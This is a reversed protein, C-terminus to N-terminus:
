GRTRVSMVKRTSSCPIKSLVTLGLIKEPLDLGIGVDLKAIVIGDRPDLHADAATEDGLVIGLGV